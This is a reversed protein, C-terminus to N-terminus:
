CLAKRNLSRRYVFCCRKKFVGLSRGNTRRILAILHHLHTRLAPTIISVPSFGLVQLYGQRLTVYDVVFGVGVLRSVFTQAIVRYSSHWRAAGAKGCLPCWWVLAVGQVPQQLWRSVTTLVSASIGSNVAFHEYSRGNGFFCKAAYHSEFVTPINSNM